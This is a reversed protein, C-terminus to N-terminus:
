GAVAYVVLNDKYSRLSHDFVGGCTILRLQRDPTPGYVKATPFAKKSYWATSTVTFTVTQGGRVVQIRDGAELERLKFFVAPGQKNDVHGAIIAPGLDGPATGDAYWGAKAFDKPPDLEGDKGIKLTELSTDVGIAKVKLRTPTGHLDAPLTGFPNPQGQSSWDPGTAPASAVAEAGAGATGWRASEVTPHPDRIALYGVAVVFATLSAVILPLVVLGKRRVRLPEQPLASPDAAPVEAPDQTASDHTETDVVRDKPASIPEPHTVASREKDDRAPRTIAITDTESRIVSRIAHMSLYVGGPPKGTVPRKVASRGVVPREVASRGIAALRDAASPQDVAPPPTGAAPRVPGRGGPDSPVRPESLATV